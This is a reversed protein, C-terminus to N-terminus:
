ESWFKRFDRNIDFNYANFLRPNLVGEWSDLNRDYKVWRSKWTAWGWIQPYISLFTGPFEAFQPLASHGNVQWIELNDKHIFLEHDVFEFFKDSPVIDDELIILANESEFAWDIASSVGQKCGRNKESFQLRVNANQTSFEKALVVCMNVSVAEELTRPGDISIYITRDCLNKNELLKGLLDPRNFGIILVSNKKVM